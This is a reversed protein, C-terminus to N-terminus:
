RRGHGIGRNWVDVEVCEFEIERGICDRREWERVPTGAPKQRARDIVFRDSM